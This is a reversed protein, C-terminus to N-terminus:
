MRPHLPRCLAQPLPAQPAPLPSPSAIALRSPPPEAPTPARGPAIPSAPICWAARAWVGPAGSRGIRQRRQQPGEGCFSIVSVVKGGGVWWPLYWLLAAVKRRLPMGRAAGGAGKSGGRSGGGGGQAGAGGGGRSGAGGRTRRPSPADREPGSGHGGGSGSSVRGGGGGSGGLDHRHTLGGGGHHGSGNAAGGGGPGAGADSGEGGAAAAALDGSRSRKDGLDRDRLDRDRDPGGGGGSYRKASGQIVLAIAGNSGHHAAAEAAADLAERLGFDRRRWILLAFLAAGLYQLPPPDDPRARPNLPSPHLLLTHLPISCAVGARLAPAREQGLM